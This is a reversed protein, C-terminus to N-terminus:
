LCFPHELDVAAGYRDAIQLSQFGFYVGGLSNWTMQVQPIGARRESKKRHDSHHLNMAAKRTETVFTM